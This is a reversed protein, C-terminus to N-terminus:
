SFESASEVRFGYNPNLIMAKFLQKWSMKTRQAIPDSDSATAPTVFTKLADLTTAGLFGRGMIYSIHVNVGAPPDPPAVPGTGTVVFANSTSPAGSKVLYVDSATGTNHKVRCQLTATGTVGGQLTSYIRYYGSPAGAAITVKVAHAAVDNVVQETDIQTEFNTLPDLRVIKVRLPANADFGVTGAPIAAGVAAAYDTYVGNILTIIPIYNSRMWRVGMWKGIEFDKLTQVQSYVGALVFTADKSIDGEVFPDVIGKFDNGYGPAGNSRLVAVIRRVDDSKLTNAITLLARSAVNGAFYVGTTGMAVVQVERDVTENHQITLLERAQQVLPHKIVLQVVDSCAAIAGWQDLTASVTSLSIPHFGPTVSEELPAEPLPLREFRTFQITKGEGKPISTKECLDWFVTDKKARELLKDAMYVALIDPSLSPVTALNTESAM